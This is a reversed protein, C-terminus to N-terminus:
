ALVPVAKLEMAALTPDAKRVAQGPLAKTNGSVPGIAAKKMSINLKLRLRRVGQVQATEIVTIPLNLFLVSGIHQDTGHANDHDSGLHVCYNAFGRLKRFTYQCLGNYSGGVSM